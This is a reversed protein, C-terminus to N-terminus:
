TAAPCPAVKLPEKWNPFFRPAVGITSAVLDRVISRRGDLSSLLCRMANVDKSYWESPINRALKELAHRNLKQEIRSLWPEFSAMSTIAMYVIAHECLGKRPHEPFSWEQGNFCFGQDIMLARYSRLPSGVDVMKFVLQRNDMNGTWKDFALMGAFDRLNQCRGLELDSIWDSVFSERSTGVQSGFCLGAQCPMRGRALQITINGDLEILERSVDVIRFPPVPLGIEEALLAGLLENALVRCGQPNNQFKVVYYAGDSCRMLQPQSGGRLRRPAEKGLVRGIM